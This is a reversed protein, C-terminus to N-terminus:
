LSSTPPHLAPDKSMGTDGTSPAGGELGQVGLAPTNPFPGHPALAHTLTQGLFGAPSAPLCDAGCCALTVASLSSPPPLPQPWPICRQQKYAVM